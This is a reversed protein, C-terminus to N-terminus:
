HIYKLLKQYKEEFTDRITADLVAHKKGWAWAKEIDEESMEPWFESLHALAPDNCVDLDALQKCRSYIEHDAPFPNKKKQFYGIIKTVDYDTMARLTKSTPM